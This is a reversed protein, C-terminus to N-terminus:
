LNLPEFASKLPNKNQTFKNILHLFSIEQFLKQNITFILIHPRLETAERRAILCPPRLGVSYLRRHRSTSPCSSCTSSVSGNDYNFILYYYIRVYSLQWLPVFTSRIQSILEVLQSVGFKFTLYASTAWNTSYRGELCVTALELRTTREM